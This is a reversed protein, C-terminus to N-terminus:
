FATNTRWSEEILHIWASFVFTNRVVRRYKCSTRLLHGQSECEGQGHGRGHGWYPGRIGAWVWVEEKKLPLPTVTGYGYTGTSFEFPVDKPHQVAGSIYARHCVSLCGSLCVSLTCTAPVMRATHDTDLGHEHLCKVTRADPSKGVNWPVLAASDILWQWLGCSGCTLWTAYWLCQWM